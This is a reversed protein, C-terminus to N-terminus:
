DQCKRKAEDDPDAVFPSDCLLCKGLGIGTPHVRLPGARFLHTRDTDAETVGACVGKM